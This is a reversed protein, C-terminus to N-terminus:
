NTQATSHHRVHIDIAPSEAQVQGASDVLRIQVSHTGREPIDIPLRRADGTSLLTDGVWAQASLGVPLVEAPSLDFEVWLPEQPDLFTQDHAPSLITVSNVTPVASDPSAVAQGASDPTAPGSDVINLPPPTVLTAEPVPQDTFITTGDADVSKYIPTSDSASAMRSASPLSLILAIFAITNKM